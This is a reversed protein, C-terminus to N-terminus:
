INDLKLGEKIMIVIAEPRYVSSTGTIARGEKKFNVAGLTDYWNETNQMPSYQEIYENMADESTFTAIVKQESVKFYVVDKCPTGKEQLNIIFKEM